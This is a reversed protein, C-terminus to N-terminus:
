PYIDGGRWHTVAILTHLIDIMDEKLTTESPSLLVTGGDEADQSELKRDNCKKVRTQVDPQRGQTCSCAFFAASSFMRGTILIFRLASCIAGIWTVPGDRQRREERCGTSMMEAGARSTVSRCQPYNKYLPAVTAPCNAHKDGVLAFWTSNGAPDGSKQLHSDDRIIGNTQPNERPDGVRDLVVELRRAHVSALHRGHLDLRVVLHCHSNWVQVPSPDWVSHELTRLSRILLLAHQDDVLLRAFDCQLLQAGVNLHLLRPWLVVVSLVLSVVVQQWRHLGLHVVMAGPLHRRLLLVM